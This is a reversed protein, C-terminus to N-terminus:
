WDLSNSIRLRKLDIITKRRPMPLSRTSADAGTSGTGPMKRMANRVVSRSATNPPSIPSSTLCVRPQFKSSRNGRISRESAGCAPVIPCTPSAIEFTQLLGRVPRLQEWEADWTRCIQSISSPTGSTTVCVAFRLAPLPHEHEGIPLARTQLALELLRQHPLQSGLSEKKSLLLHLFSTACDTVLAIRIVGCGQMTFIASLKMRLLCKAMSGM